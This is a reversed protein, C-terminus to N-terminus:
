AEHLLQVKVSSRLKEVESAFVVPDSGTVYATATAVAYCAIDMLSATNRAFGVALGAMCADGAGVLIRANNVDCLASWLKQNAVFRLGDQGLTVTPLTVNCSSMFGLAKRVAEDRDHQSESLILMEEENPKCVLVRCQELVLRLPEGSIDILLRAGKEQVLKGCEAWANDSIGKPTSGNLTVLDGPEIDDTLQKLLTRFSVDNDLAFGPGKVHATPSGDNNNLITVNRRTRGPVTVLSASIGEEQLRSSFENYDLEGVLGYAKVKEGLMQVIRAANFGKGSPLTQHALIDGVTGFAFNSVTFVEDFGSNLTVTRIM